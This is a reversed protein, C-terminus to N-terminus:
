AGEEGEFYIQKENGGKKVKIDFTLAVM